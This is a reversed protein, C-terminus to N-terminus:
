LRRHRLLKRRSPRQRRLRLPSRPPHYQCQHGPLHFDNSSPNLFLPNSTLNNSQTTTDSFNAIGAGDQWCINNKLLTNQASDGILMCTSDNDYITNNFIQSM